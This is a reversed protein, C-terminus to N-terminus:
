DGKTVRLVEELSLLGAKIKKIGALRLTDMGNEVALEKIETASAGMVIAEKIEPSLAMVEYLAVRGKCGTNSCVACGQGKMPTVERIDEPTMGLQEMAAVNSEAPGVCKSCIKRALRQALILNVSSSVLFPEIGMNILRNVTSPADNTHLTSLVLHGTLAAKISIEATEFDRIEGVLIVDPDQRLFSRLAAAFNLGIQDAMQVQNIGLLNYEVPDEATMINTDEKNLESLASYLTTTKGSGTPGTVLVMGWPQSVNHRFVDLSSEEFGLKTMDLQLNSKDLLRLVIKEGFLTPLSSVRFDMERGKGIKLKIRGDQPLRREAIDLHAMVKLRSLIPMKLQVPLTMVNKLVGDLRYRVRMQREYPEVHIDSVKMHIAKLLMSNVLKIIPADVNESLEGEDIDEVVEIDDVAGSVLSDFDELELLSDAAFDISGDGAENYAAIASEEGMGELVEDGGLRVVGILQEIEERKAVVMEINYGTIFKLEDAAFINTPDATAVTITSGRRSIPVVTHKKLVKIPILSILQSDIERDALSIVPVIDQSM